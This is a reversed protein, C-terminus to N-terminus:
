KRRRIFRFSAFIDSVPFVDWRQGAFSDVSMKGRSRKRRGIFFGNENIIPLRQTKRRKARRFKANATGKTKPPSNDEPSIPESGSMDGSWRNCKESKKDYENGEKWNNDCRLKLKMRKDHEKPWTTVYIKPSGSNTKKSSGSNPTPNASNQQTILENIEKELTELSTM